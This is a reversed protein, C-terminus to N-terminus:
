RSITSFPDDPNEQTTLQKLRTELDPVVEISVVVAKREMSTPSLGENMADLAAVEKIDQEQVILLRETEADEVLLDLHRGIITVVRTVFIITLREFVEGTKPDTWEDLGGDNFMAWAVFDTKRGQKYRLRLMFARGQPRDKKSAERPEGDVGERTAQRLRVMAGKDPM